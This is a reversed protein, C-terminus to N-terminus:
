QKLFTISYFGDMSGTSPLSKFVSKISLNYVRSFYDAQEENEEKLLSCTAYVIHGKLKVYKLALEFISRQKLQLERINEETFQWKIAPNRRLTGTGSCPADVVVWDCNSLLKPPPLPGKLLYSNKVGARLLRKRAEVLITPRIDYLYIEGRQQMTPAIALSKGGAGACFDLVIEGPKALVQQAVIQSGEDQVEFYGRRYEPVSAFHVKELFHIGLPSNHCMEVLHNHELRRMCTARDIKLLNVRVTTPAKTNCALALDFAQREGYSEVLYHFLEKPFSCRIDPPISPKNIHQKFSFDSLFEINKVLNEGSLYQILRKWRVFHYLTDAIFARDKSGLSRNSKFYKKLQIDLPLSQIEFGQLIYLLHKQRFLAFNM